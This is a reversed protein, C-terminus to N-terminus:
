QNALFEEIQDSTLTWTQEMIGAIFRAKFKQYLRTAKTTNKDGLWDLLIALSLQAPGSGSYGWEFGTPSHNFVDNRPPLPYSVNIFSGAVEVTVHCGSKTRNGKYLKPLPPRLLRWDDEFDVEEM